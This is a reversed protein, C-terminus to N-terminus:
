TASQRRGVPRPKTPGDAPGAASRLVEAEIACEAQLMALDAAGAASAAALGAALDDASTILAQARSRPGALAVSRGAPDRVSEVMRLEADVRAAAAEIRRLLAPVDGVPAHAARAAGLSSRVSQQARALERRLRASEGLAGPAYARSTVRTQEAVSRAARRLARSVRVTVMVTLGGLAVVLVLLGLPWTM